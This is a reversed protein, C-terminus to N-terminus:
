DALLESARALAGTLGRLSVKYTAPPQGMPTFTVGLAQGAALARAQDADFAVPFACGLQAVCAQFSAPVTSGADIQLVAGQRLDVGHPLVISGTLTGGQPVLEAILQVPGDAGARQEQRLNCAKVTGQFGCVLVWDGRVERLANAGGPFTPAEQSMAGSSGLVLLMLAPLVSRKM